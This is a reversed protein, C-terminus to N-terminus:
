SVDGEQKTRQPTLGYALFWSLILIRYVFGGSENGEGTFFPSSQPTPSLAPVMWLVIVNEHSQLM